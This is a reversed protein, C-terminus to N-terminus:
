VLFGLDNGNKKALRILNTRLVKPTSNVFEEFDIVDNEDVDAREVLSKSKDDDIWTFGLAECADRIEQQTLVGDGNADAAEFLKKLALRGFPTDSTDVFRGIVKSHKVIVDARLQKLEDEGLTLKAAEVLPSFIGQKGSGAFLATPTPSLPLISLTHLPSTAKSIHTIYASTSIILTLTIIMSVYLNTM